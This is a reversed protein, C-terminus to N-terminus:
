RHHRVEKARLIDERADRLRNAVFCGIPRGACVRIVDLVRHLHSRQENENPMIDQASAFVVFELRM